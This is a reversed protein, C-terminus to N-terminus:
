HLWKGGKRGMLVCKSHLKKLNHTASHLNWEGNCLELGRLRFEDAGQTEKMQGFVPEVTQGRKKYLEKGRKTLLKREM